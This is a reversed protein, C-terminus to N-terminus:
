KALLSIQTDVITQASEKICVFLQDYDIKRTTTYDLFDIMEGVTVWM